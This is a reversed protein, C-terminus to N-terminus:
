GVALPYKVLMVKALISSEDDNIAAKMGSYVNAVDLVDDLYGIPVFLIIIKFAFYKRLM